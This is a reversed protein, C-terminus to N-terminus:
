STVVINTLASVAAENYNLQIDASVPTLSNKQITLATIEFTGFYLTGSLTAPAITGFYSINAGISLGEFYAVLAAQILAATSSAWGNLPNVTIAVSMTADIPTQYNLVRTSGNSDTITTTVNNVGSGNYTPIGPTIKEFIANFINTSSGGEVIFDLNNAPISGGPVSLASSTNNEIGRIRTVGTVQEISAVIGEFITVSPLTVSAAQRVRLAADTEVPAGTAAAAANTVSQWGYSPTQIQTITGMGAIVDGVTTCTAVANVTGGSGITVTTPLAWINGNVDAAQGNTVVAGAQGTLTLTATSFSPVLRVLGNIQVNSSLGTGQATAPSFSNYVAITMNNSDNIANAFVGLLQGDQSDNGLYVDAGFIAQYQSQLYALIQAYTPATIGNPGVIAATPSIYTSM